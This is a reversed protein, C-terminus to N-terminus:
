PYSVSSIGYKFELKFIVEPTYIAVIRASPGNNLLSIIILSIIQLISSTSTFLIFSKRFYM